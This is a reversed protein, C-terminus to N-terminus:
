RLTVSKNATFRQEKAAKIEAFDMFWGMQDDVQGQFYLRLRFSHGHLRKCKHGDPVNPLHHAAEFIFEKFIEM